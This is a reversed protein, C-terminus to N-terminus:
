CTHSTYIQCLKTTHRQRCKLWGWVHKSKYVTLCAHLLVIVLSQLTLAKCLSDACMCLYFVWWLLVMLICISTHIYTHIDAVFVKWKQRDRTLVGVSSSCKTYLTQSYIYAHMCAHTNTHYSDPRSYLKTSFLLSIWALM